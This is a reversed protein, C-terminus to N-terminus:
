SCHRQTPHNEPLAHHRRVFARLRGVLWDDFKCVCIQRRDPARSISATLRCEMVRADRYCDLLIGEAANDTPTNKPSADCRSGKCTHQAVVDM